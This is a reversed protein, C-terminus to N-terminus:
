LADNKNLGIVKPIIVDKPTYGSWAFMGIVAIAIIASVIIIAIKRKSVSKSKAKAKLKLREKRNKEYEDDVFDNHLDDDQDDNFGHPVNIKTTKDNMAKEIEEVSIIRTSEDVMVDSLKTHPNILVKNIDKIMETLTQYRKLADKQTSKILIDWVGDPIKVSSELPKKIEEQIHKIAIAVPAEGDFPVEGTLLEYMVIGLSYIDTRNDTISGKAQEPSVYHVSGMVTKTNTMTSGSVARAIGFDAVKVIGDETILINHPKIDRHVVGNKHVHELAKSIQKVIDLVKPYELKGHKKIYEKLTIGDVYEMVIYNIGDENGVDYVNVINTHSLSAVALSESKFKKVFDEDAMYEPRLIKVAVNRNLLECKAKYVLAMGGDGAKEILTYRNGLKKTNFSNM